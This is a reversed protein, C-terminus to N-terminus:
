RKTQLLKRFEGAVLGKALIRNDWAVINKEQLQKKRDQLREMIVAFHDGQEFIQKKLFWNVLTGTKAAATTQNTKTEFIQIVEEFYWDQFGIIESSQVKAVMDLALQIKVGYRILLQFAKLEAFSLEEVTLKKSTIKSPTNQSTSCTVSRKEWFEFQISKVKRGEKLVRYQLAIGTKQNIESEVVELVKKKFNRWDHYKNEISLLKKLDELEYTIQSRNQHKSFKDRYARLIQFIRISFTSKLAIVENLNVAVYKKLNLLYPQLSKAFLFKLAVNGIEDYVPMIEQFWNIYGDFDKGEIRIQTPIYIGKRVLSDRILRLESYLGGWRKADGKLFQELEKVSITQEILNQQHLPDIKSILFLIIKAEKATLNYRAHFVFRNDMRAINVNFPASM